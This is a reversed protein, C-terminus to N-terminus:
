FTNTHTCDNPNVFSESHNFTKNKFSLENCASFICGLLRYPNYIRSCYSNEFNTKIKEANRNEVEVLFVKRELTREVGAVVWVGGVRFGINNKCKGLKKEDVEVVIVPGGIVVREIDVSDGL